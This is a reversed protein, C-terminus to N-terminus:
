EDGGSNNGDDDEEEEEGHQHGSWGPLIDLESENMFSEGDRCELSAFFEQVERKLAEEDEVPCFTLELDHCPQHTSFPKDAKTFSWDSGGRLSMRVPHTQCGAVWATGHVHVLNLDRIVEVMEESALQSLTIPNLPKTTKTVEAGAGGGIKISVVSPHM